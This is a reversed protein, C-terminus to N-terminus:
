DTVKAERILPTIWFANEVESDITWYEILDRFVEKESKLIKEIEYWRYDRDLEKDNLFDDYSALIISMIAYKMEASLDNDNYFSIFEDVRNKDALEVDWDQEFGMYPLSLEKSLQEIIEKRLIM